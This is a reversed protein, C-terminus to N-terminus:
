SAFAVVQGFKKKSGGGLFIQPVNECMTLIIDVFFKLCWTTLDKCKLSGRLLATAAFFWGCFECRDCSGLM